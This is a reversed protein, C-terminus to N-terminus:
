QNKNTNNKENPVLIGWVTVNHLSTKKFSILKNIIVLFGVSKEDFM